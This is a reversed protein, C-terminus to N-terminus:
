ALLQNKREHRRSPFFRVSRVTPLITFVLALAFSVLDGNKLYIWTFALAPLWRFMLTLVKDYNIVYEGSSENLEM